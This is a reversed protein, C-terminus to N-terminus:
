EVAPSSAESGRLELLPHDGRSRPQDGPEFLFVRRHRHDTKWFARAALQDSICALGSHARNPEVLRDIRAPRGPLQGRLQRDLAIEVRKRQDGAAFAQARRNRLDKVGEGPTRVDEIEPMA